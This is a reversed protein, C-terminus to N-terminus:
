FKRKKERYGDDLNPLSVNATKLLSSMSKIVKQLNGQDSYPILLPSYGSIFVIILVPSPLCFLYSISQGLIRLQRLKAAEQGVVNGQSDQSKRTGVVVVWWDGPPPPRCGVYDPDTMYGPVTM